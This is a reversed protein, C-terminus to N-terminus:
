TLGTPKNVDFRRTYFVHFLVTASFWCIALSFLDHSPFHAGRAEQALSFVIGLLLGFALGHFRFRPATVLFFYYLNVFAFGGSSHGGPFCHGIPLGAAVKDFLHIYPKSGGFMTLNRPCYMHTAGKLAGVISPGIISSFFLFTYLKAHKRYRPVLWSTIMLLFFVIGVLTLLRKSWDHLLTETLWAHGFPWTHQTSDYFLRSFRLDLGKLEILWIAAVFALAPYIFTYLFHQTKFHYVGTARDFM